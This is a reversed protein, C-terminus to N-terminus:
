ARFALWGLFRDVDYLAAQGAPALRPLPLDFAHETFPFEVYVTPVGAEALRRHLARTTQVPVDSDHTGQFLLTPPCHPGVYNLPSLLAYAEPVEDPRGGLVNRAQQWRRNHAHFRALDTPPYYAVVGCVALDEGRLAEPTLAPPHAYAALLALHGGASEGALAVRHPAVGHRPGHQKMWHVARRVDGVLGPLDSERWTRPRLDLVVHGQSALHRFTPANWREPYSFAWGGSNVYILALGSPAVGAPPEWLDAHLTPASGPGLAVGRQVRPRPARPQWWRRRRRLMRAARDAPIAAQWGPGLARTFADHPATVRRWYSLALGAGVLGAGALLPARSALGLAAGLAGALTLYPSLSQGVIKPGATVRALPRRVRVFFTASLGLSVFALLYSFFKL